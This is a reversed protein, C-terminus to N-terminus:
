TRLWCVCVVTRRSFTHFSVGKNGDLSRLASVAPRFGEAIRQVLMLKKGKIQASLGSQCSARLWALFGRTDTVGSVYIPTENQREAAPAASNSVAQANKTTSDPMGCLPGSMDGLSMRRTDAEPSAAPASHDIGKAPSKHPGSSQQSSAVGAVVTACALRGETPGLQRSGLAALECTTGQAEPGDDFLHGPAHRRSAPESPCDSSSLEEAKRKSLHLSDRSTRAEGGVAGPRELAAASMAKSAALTKKKKGAV